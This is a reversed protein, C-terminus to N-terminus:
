CICEEYEGNIYLQVFESSPAYAMGIENVLDYTLKYSLLSNDRYAALLVYDKAAGMGLLDQKETFSLNYSKKRHVSPIMEMVRSKRLDPLKPSREM